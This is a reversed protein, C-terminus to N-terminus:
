LEYVRLFVLFWIKSGKGPFSLALCFSHFAARSLVKTKSVDLRSESGCSNGVADGVVIEIKSGEM